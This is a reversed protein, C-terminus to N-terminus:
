NVERKDFRAYLYNKNWYERFEKGRPHFYAVAQAIVVAMQVGVDMDYVRSLAEEPTQDKSLAIMVELSANIFENNYSNDLNSRVVGEWEPVLIERIIGQSRELCSDLTQSTEM